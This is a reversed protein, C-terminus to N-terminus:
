RWNHDKEICVKCFPKTQEIWHNYAMTVAEERRCRHCPNHPTTEKKFEKYVFPSDKTYEKLDERNNMIEVCEKITLPM